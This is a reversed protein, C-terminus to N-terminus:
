ADDGGMGRIKGIFGAFYMLSLAAYIITGFTPVASLVPYSLVSLVAWVAGYFISNFLLYQSFMSLGSGLARVGAAIGAAVAGTALAAIWVPFDYNFTINTGSQNFEVSTQTGNVILSTGNADLSQTVTGLSWGFLGMAVIFGMIFVSYELYHIKM